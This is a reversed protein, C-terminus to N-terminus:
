DEDKRMMTRVAAALVKPEYQFVDDKVLIHKGFKKSEPVGPNLNLSSIAPSDSKMRPYDDESFEAFGGHEAPSSSVPTNDLGDAPPTSMLGADGSEAAAAAAEDGPTDDISVDVSLGATGSSLMAYVEPVLKKLVMVVAFGLFLFVLALVASRAAIATGPVGSAVGVLVSLVLASIGFVASFRYEISINKLAPM